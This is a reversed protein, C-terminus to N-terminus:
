QGEPRGRGQLLEEGASELDPTQPGATPIQLAPDGSHLGRGCRAALATDQARTRDVWHHARGGLLTVEQGLVAGGDGGVRPQAPGTALRSPPARLRHGQTLEPLLGAWRQGIRPM